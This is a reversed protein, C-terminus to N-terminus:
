PKKKPATHYENEIQRTQQLVLSPSIHRLPCVVGGHKVLVESCPDLKNEMSVLKWYHSEVM